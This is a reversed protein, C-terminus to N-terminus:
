SSWSLVKTPLGSALSAIGTIMQAASRGSGLSAIGTATTPGGFTAWGMVGAALPIMVKGGPNHEEPTGTAILDDFLDSMPVGDEAVWAAVVV